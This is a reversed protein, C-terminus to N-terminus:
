EEDTTAVILHIDMWEADTPQYLGIERSPHHRAHMVDPSPPDTKLFPPGKEFTVRSIVLMVGTTSM